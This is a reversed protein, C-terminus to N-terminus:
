DYRYDKISYQLVSNIYGMLFNFLPSSEYIVSPQILQNSLILYIIALDLSLFALLPLTKYGISSIYEKVQPADRQLAQIANNFTYESGIYVIQWFPAKYQISFKKYINEAIYQCYITYYVNPLKLKVTNL